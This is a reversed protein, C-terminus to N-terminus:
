SKAYQDFMAGTTGFIFPNGGFRFAPYTEVDGSATCGEKFCIRTGQMRIKAPDPLRARPVHHRDHNLPLSLLTMSVDCVFPKSSSLTSFVRHFHLVTTHKKYHLSEKQTKKTNKLPLQLHKNINPVLSWVSWTQSTQWNLSQRFKYRNLSSKM